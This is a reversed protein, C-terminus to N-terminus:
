NKHGEKKTPIKTSVIVGFPCKSILQGKSFGSKLVQHKPLHVSILYMNLTDLLDEFSVYFMEFCKKYNM